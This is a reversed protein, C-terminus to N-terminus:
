VHLLKFFSRINKEDLCIADKMTELSDFKHDDRIFSHINLTVELNYIDGDFDFINMEISKEKGNLTPRNGIYLMGFHLKENVIISAAYIGEKPILKYKNQLDINATPFGITRGIKNGEVVTGQLSFLSGLLENALTVNGELLANRIATSSVKQQSVEFEPIEEVEFNYEKAIAKLFHVDGRRDKGFKHDHGIIVYSVGMQGVLIEKVFDIPEIQSINENFNLVFLNDIGCNELLEIKEPLTNLLRLNQADKQLVIRPHPEFTLIATQHGKQQAVEILRDIIKRHGHHVGDFTGITLVIPKEIKYDQLDAIIKM